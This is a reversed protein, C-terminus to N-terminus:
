FYHQCSSFYKKLVYFANITLGMVHKDFDPLDTACISMKHTYQIFYAVNGKTSSTSKWFEELKGELFILKGGAGGGRGGRKKWNWCSNARVTPCKEITGQAETRMASYWDSCRGATVTKVDLFGIEL